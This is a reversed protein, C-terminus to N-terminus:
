NSDNKNKESNALYGINIVLQSKENPDFKSSKNRYACFQNLKQSIAM